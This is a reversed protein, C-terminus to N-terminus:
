DFHFALTLANEAARSMKETIHTYYRLTFELKSHGLMEQVYRPSLGNEALVTAYTHRLNHFKFHIGLDKKIIRALFKAGNTTLMEGNAKVNIFNPIEIVKEKRPERRDTVFNRKYGAGYFKREAEQQMKMDALYQAFESTINVSRYSNITKLPVFCWKKDQYLLQKCVKLTKKEFDIDDWTLAFCESERLGAQLAIQFAIKSRTSEIREIMQALEERSYTVIDGRHRPDPPPPVLDMVNKKMYKHNHAYRMIVNFFKYFGKVYEESYKQRKQNLFDIIMIDSIQYVYMPGFQKKIHNRYLSDYRKLTAYARTAKGEREIFEEYVTHFTIKKNEVYDGSNNLHYLVDQMAKTAARETKFGGKEIQKRKGGVYGLDIRYSWANNKRKRVSGKM